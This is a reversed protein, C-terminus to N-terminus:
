MTEYENREKEKWFLLIQCAAAVKLITTNLM